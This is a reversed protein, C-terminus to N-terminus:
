AAPALPPPGDQPEAAEPEGFDLTSMDIMEIFRRVSDRRRTPEAQWIAVAIMGAMIVPSRNRRPDDLAEAFDPFEMGTVEQILVADGLRFSDPFSYERSGIRFKADAKKRAM